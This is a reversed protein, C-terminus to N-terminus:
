SKLFKVINELETYDTVEGFNMSFHYTYNDAMTFKEREKKTNEEKIETNENENKNINEIKTELKKIEKIDKKSVKPELKIEDDDTHRSKKSSFM